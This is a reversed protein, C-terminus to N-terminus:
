KVASRRNDAERKAEKLYKRPCWKPTEYDKKRGVYKTGKYTCFILDRCDIYVNGCELCKYKKDIRKRWVKKITKKLKKNKNFQRGISKDISSPLIKGYLALNLNLNVTIREKTKM